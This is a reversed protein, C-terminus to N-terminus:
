KSDCGHESMLLSVIILAAGAGATIGAVTELKTRRSRGEEVSLRPNNSAGVIATIAGVALAGAGFYALDGKISCGSFQAGMPHSQAVKVLSKAYANADISSSPIKSVEEFLASAQAPTYLRMDVLAHQTREIRGESPAQKEYDQADVILQKQLDSPSLSEGQLSLVQVLLNEEPSVQDEAKASFITAVNAILQLAIVTQAISKKTQTKM